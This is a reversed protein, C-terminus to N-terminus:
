RPGGGRDMGGAPAEDATVTAISTASGIEGSEALGGVSDGSATGGTYVFYEDGSTIGDTSVVVNQVTKSATYTAIVQNDGNVIQVVTGAEVVTDLTASVWGQQSDTSPSVV